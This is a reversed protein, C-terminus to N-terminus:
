RRRLIAGNADVVSRCLMHMAAPVLGPARLAPCGLRATHLIARPRRAPDTDYVISAARLSRGKVLQTRDFVPRGQRDLTVYTTLRDELEDLRLGAAGLAVPTLNFAELQKRSVLGYIAASGLMTARGRSAAQEHLHSLIAMLTLGAGSFINESINNATHPTEAIYPVLLDRTARTLKPSERSFIQTQQQEALGSLTDAVIRAAPPLAAFAQAALSRARPLTALTDNATELNDVTLGGPHNATRRYIGILRSAAENVLRDQIDPTVLPQLERSVLTLGAYRAKEREEGSRQLAGGLCYAVIEEESYHPNEAMYGETNRVLSTWTAPPKYM